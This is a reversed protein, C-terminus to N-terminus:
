TRWAKPICITGAEWNSYTLVFHFVLHAFTQGQITIGLETMHTFDSACLKGPEHKQGFYVEQAPGETARWLKIRRQLQIQGDSYRGPHEAAVVRIADQSGTRSEGRDTAAGPGVSRRIPGM